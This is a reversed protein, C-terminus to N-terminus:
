LNNTLLTEWTFSFLQTNHQCIGGYYCHPGLCVFDRRDDLHNHICQGNDM